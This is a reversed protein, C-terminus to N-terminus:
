PKRGPILSVTFRPPGGSSRFCRVRYDADGHARWAAAAEDYSSFMGIQFPRRITTM